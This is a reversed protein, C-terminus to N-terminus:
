ECDTSRVLFLTSWDVVRRVGLEGVVVDSCGGESADGGNSLRERGGVWCSANMSSECM